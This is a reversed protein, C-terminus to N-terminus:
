IDDAMSSRAFFNSPKSAAIVLTSSLSVSRSAQRSVASAAM